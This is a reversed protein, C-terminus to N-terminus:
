AVKNVTHIITAITATLLPELNVVVRTSGNAVYVNEFENKNNAIKGLFGGCYTEVNQLKHPLQGIIIFDYANNNIKRCDFSKIESKQTKIEVEKKNYGYKEFIEQIEIKDIESFGFVLVKRKKNTVNSLSFDKIYDELEDIRNAKVMQKYLIKQVEEYKKNFAEIGLM